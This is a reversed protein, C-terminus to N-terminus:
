SISIIGLDKGLTNMNYLFLVQEINNEKIYTTISEKYYRPDIIHITQYHKSLFPIFSNAYSDKLILISSSNTVNPNEITILSHNGNLFYSYKDKKELWSKEYFSNTKQKEYIYSVNVKDHVYEYIVDSKYSYINAKSYLTGNFDKSVIVPHFSNISIPTIGKEKLYGFYGYYAGKTTWHHDLRYFLDNAENHQQLYPLIDIVNVGKLKKTISERDELQTTADVYKPLKNQNLVISTPVFMIDIVVSPNKEQFRNIASIIKQKDKESIPEYKEILFQDKGIYVDKNEDKLSLRELGSKLTLFAERMPFHDEIYHNLKNMLSGDLLNEVSLQPFKELYRNENESMEKKPSIIFWVSFFIFLASLFITLGKKM